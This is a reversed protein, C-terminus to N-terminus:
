SETGAAWPVADGSKVVANGDAQFVLVAAPHGNTRSSWLHQGERNYVVLNGDAQFRASNGDGKTLAASRPKHDQDHVVLNGDERM